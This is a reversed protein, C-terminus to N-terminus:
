RCNIHFIESFYKQLRLNTFLSPLVTLQTPAHQHMNLCANDGNCFAHEFIVGSLYLFALLAALTCRVKLKKESSIPRRRHWSVQSGVWSPSRLEPGVHAVSVLPLAICSAEENHVELSNSVRKLVFLSM